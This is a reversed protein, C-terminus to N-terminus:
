DGASDRGGRIAAAFIGTATIVAACIAAGRDHPPRATWILPTTGFRGAVDPAPAPAQPPEHWGANTLLTLEVAQQAPSGTLAVYAGSGAILATVFATQTSAILATKGEMPDPIPLSFVPPNGGVTALQGMLPSQLSDDAAIERVRALPHTLPRSTAPRTTCRRSSWAM